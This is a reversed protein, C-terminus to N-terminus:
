MSKDNMSKDNDGFTTKLTLASYMDRKSLNQSNAAMIVGVFSVCTMTPDFTNEAYIALDKSLSSDDRLFILAKKRSQQM